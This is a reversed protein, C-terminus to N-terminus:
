KIILLLLSLLLSSLKNVNFIKDVKGKLTAEDIPEIHKGMLDYIATIIDTM